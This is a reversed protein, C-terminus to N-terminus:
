ITPAAMQKSHNMRPFRLSRQYFCDGKSGEPCRLLSIPHDVLNKLMWPSAAAYFEALQGKTVGVDEFIIRDPHSIGVGLVDLPEDKKEKPSIAKVTVPKDM